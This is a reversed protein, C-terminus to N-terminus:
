MPFHRFTNAKTHCWGDFINNSKARELKFIFRQPSGKFLPWINVQWCGGSATLAAKFVRDNCDTENLSFAGADRHGEITNRPSQLIWYNQHYLFRSKSKGRCGETSQRKFCKTCRQIQRCQRCLTISCPQMYNIITVTKTIIAVNRQRKIIATRDRFKKVCCM